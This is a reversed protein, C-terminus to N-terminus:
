SESGSRACRFGVFGSAFSPELDNRSATRVVRLHSGWAGGRVVRRSGSDPGQPNEGPSSAYYGPDYWDAVWEWVNGAVNWAGCPSAGLPYSYVPATDAHDDDWATNKGDLPCNADCFNLLYGKFENGWPYLRKTGTQADWSAAKEWEAETPLRKGAWQCYTDAQQWTVYIVPHDDFEPNGYYSDRTESQSSSPPSCPGEAVCHQYQLNTVETRDIWFADLYVEHQPKEEDRALLDGEDSGMQFTGAPVYVMM